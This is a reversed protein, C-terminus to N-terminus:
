QDPKSSSGNKFRIEVTEQIFFRIGDTMFESITQKKKDAGLTILAQEQPTFTEFSVANEVKSKRSRTRKAPQDM